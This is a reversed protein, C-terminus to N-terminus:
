AELAWGNDVDQIEKETGAVDMVVKGWELSLKITKYHEGAKGFLFLWIGEWGLEVLEASLGGSGLLGGLLGDCSGEDRGRRFWELLALKAGDFRCLVKLVV